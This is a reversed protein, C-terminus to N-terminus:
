LNTNNPLNPTDVPEPPAEDMSEANVVGGAQAVDAKAQEIMNSRAFEMEAQIHFMIRDKVEPELEENKLFDVHKRIHDTTAGENPKVDETLMTENEEAGEAIIEKNGQSQPDLLEKVLEPSFGSLEFMTELGVVTNVEPLALTGSLVQYRDRRKRADANLEANLGKVVIDFDTDLDKKILKDWQLGKKGIRKIALEEPMHEKLGNVFRKGMKIWFRSYSKEYTALRDATNAQEGEFVGVKKDDESQGQISPTIGSNKSIKGDILNHLITTDDLSPYQIQYISNQITKNTGEPITASVLGSWRPELMAPNDIVESDYVKMGFNKYQRNDFSQNVLIEEAIYGERVQDCPSPTWFEHADPHTAWSDMNWLPDGNEYEPTQFVDSLLEVRLWTKSSLEFTCIYRRGEYTTYWETLKVTDESQHKYLRANYGFISHRNEKEQNENDDDMTAKVFELKMKAVQEKSYRDDNELAFITKFINDHGMFMADETDLGGAMPDILFDYPDVLILESKYEPDSVAFFKMICRGYLGAQKKGLLDKFNWDGRDPRAQQKLILTVKDAKRYDAENTPEFEIQPPEDIKSIFTDLFGQMDGFKLNHRGRIVKGRRMFYADENLHWSSTIRPARYKLCADYEKLSQKLIEDKNLEAM